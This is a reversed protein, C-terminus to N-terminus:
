VDIGRHRFDETVLDLILRAKSEADVADEDTPMIADRPYRLEDGWKNLNSIGARKDQVKWGKPLMDCLIQLDHTRPFDINELVLAAKLAKEACQQSYMCIHRPITSKGDTLQLAVDLDDKARRLGMLSETINNITYLVKGERFAEHIVNGVVDRRRGIEEHDTVIIDKSIPMDMLLERIKIATHHKNEVKDMVILLDVDSTYNTDGRAQSGFLIISAPHVHKVIIDVMSSIVETAMM